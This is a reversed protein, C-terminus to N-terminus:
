KATLMKDASGVLTAFAVWQETGNGYPPYTARTPERRHYNTTSAPTKGPRGHGHFLEYSAVQGADDKHVKVVVGVHNIGTGRKFLDEATFDKYETARQGYFMVAGPKILDSHAIADKVLILKGQENYWRALDRTDRYTEIPPYAQEPCREKMGKLVRHFIGSCDTLPKVSYLFSSDGIATTIEAVPSAVDIQTGGCNLNYSDLSALAAPTYEFAEAEATPEADPKPTATQETKESQSCAWTFLMVSLALILLFSWTTSTKLKLM